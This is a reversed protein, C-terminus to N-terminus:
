MGAADAHSEARLYRLAITLESAAWPMNSMVTAVQPEMQNSLHRFWKNARAQNSLTGNPYADVTAIITWPLRLQRTNDQAFNANPMAVFLPNADHDDPKPIDAPLDRMWEADIDRTSADLRHLVHVVLGSLGIMEKRPTGNPYDLWSAKGQMKKSILWAKGRDIKAQVESRQPEAIGLRIQEHLALVSWATAYTSANAENDTASSFAPWWGNHQNNLIIAIDESSLKQGVKALAFAVWNVTATDQFRASSVVKWCRCDAFRMKDLLMAFSKGDPEQGGLLAVTMQSVVWASYNSNSGYADHLEGSLYPFLTSYIAQDVKAAEWTPLHLADRHFVAVSMDKLLSWDVTQASKVLLGACAILTLVLARVLWSSRLIADRVPGMVSETLQRKFDGFSSPPTKDPHSHGPESRSEM